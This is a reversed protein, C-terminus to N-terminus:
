AGTSLGRQKNVFRQTLYLTILLLLGVFDTLHEPWVLLVASVILLLRELINCKRYLYNTWAACMAVVGFLTSATTLIVEITSGEGLLAPYFVFLFPILYGIMVNRSAYLGTKMPDADAIGAATYAALAVPPTIDAFVGFYFVFLHAPLIPIGLAILAPATVSAQVIYNATTPLAMGLILCALATLILAAVLNGEAMTGIVASFKVGLGTMSVAGVIIGASACAAAISVAGEGADKFVDWFDQLKMRTSVRAMAAVILFVMGIFAARGPSYGRVLTVILALLPVIYIWGQRAVDKLKPIDEEPLGEMGTQLAEFHVSMYLSFYYLFAPIAAAGIIVLYPIQTFESMIFAGAGMIPPMLQGGTSAAAEVSGAFAPRYGVKKMLPITLTGTTAVNAISSGSIMGMLGSGIIAIKAPGGKARGAVSIAFNIFSSGGGSRELFSGFLIFLFVITVIVGLPVGYVGETTMYMQNVVRAFNYDRHGFQGPILHGYFTYILFISVVIPLPWGIARRTADLVMIICLAGLIQDITNPAGMRNVLAEFNLVVYGGIVIAAIIWLYNVWKLVANQSNKYIPFKLFIVVLSLTLVVARQIMATLPVVLSTSVIFLSLAVAGISVLIGVVKKEGDTVYFGELKKNLISQKNM